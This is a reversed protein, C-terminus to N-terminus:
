DADSGPVNAAKTCAGGHAARVSKCFAATRAFDCLCSGKGDGRPVTSLDENIARGVAFDIFNGNRERSHRLAPSRPVSAAPFIHTLFISADLTWKGPIFISISWNLLCQRDNVRM